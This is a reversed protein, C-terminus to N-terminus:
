PLPGCEIDGKHATVHGHHAIAHDVVVIDFDRPRGAPREIAVLAFGTREEQLAVMVTHNAETIDGYRNGFLTSNLAERASGTRGCM